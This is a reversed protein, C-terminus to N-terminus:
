SNKHPVLPQRQCRGTQPCHRGQNGDFRGAVQPCKGVTAPAHKQDTQHQAGGADGGSAPLGKALAGKGQQRQRAQDTDKDPICGQKGTHVPQAGPAAAQQEGAMCEEGGQETETQKTLLEAAPSQHSRQQHKGTDHEGDQEAPTAAILVVLPFLHTSVKGDADAQPQCGGETLAQTGDDGLWHHHTAIDVCHAGGADAHATGQQSVAGQSHQSYREGHGVVGDVTLHQPQNADVTEQGHGHPHCQDQDGQALSLDTHHRDEGGGCWDNQEGQQPPMRTLAGGKRGPRAGQQRGQTRGHHQPDASM